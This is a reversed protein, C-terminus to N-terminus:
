PRWTANLSPLFESIRFTLQEFGTKPRVCVRFSSKVAAEHRVKAEGAAQNLCVIPPEPRETSLDCATVTVSVDSGTARGARCARRRHKRHASKGGGEGWMTTSICETFAYPEKTKYYLGVLHM